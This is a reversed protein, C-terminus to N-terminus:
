RSTRKRLYFADVLFLRDTIGVSKLIVAVPGCTDSGVPINTTHTAVLVGDIYFRITAGDASSIFGLRYWTSTIIDIGSDTTTEAADKCTICEWSGGSETYAYTFYIGDNPATGDYVSLLGVTIKYTEAVDSLTGPTMVIFEVKLDGGPIITSTIYPLRIAAV